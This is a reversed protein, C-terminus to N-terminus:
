EQNSSTDDETLQEVFPLFKGNCTIVVRDEGHKGKIKEVKIYFDIASMIGDGFKENVIEKISEGNHMVAENMRYILPEQIIEEDYSRMPALQMQTLDNDSIEPFVEKLKLATQPKLQAQNHLLQACYVNTVGCKAAIEDYTLGKAEKIKLLRMVLEDKEEFRNPLAPKTAYFKRESGDTRRNYCIPLISSNLSKRSVYCGYRRLTNLAMNM